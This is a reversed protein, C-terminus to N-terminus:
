ERNGGQDQVNDEFLLQRVLDYGADTMFLARKRPDASSVRQEIFATPSTRAHADQYRGLLIAVHRSASQQPISTRASLDNVSLGPTEAIALLCIVQPLGLQDQVRQFTNRLRQLKLVQQAVLPQHM